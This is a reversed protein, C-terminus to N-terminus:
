AARGGDRRDCSALLAAVQERELGRPLASFRWGAVGPVADVLPVMVLGTVHLFVLLSRLGSILTKAWAM